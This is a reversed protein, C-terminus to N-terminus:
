GIRSGNRVGKTPTLLVVGNDDCLAGLILVESKVGAIRKPAFNLVGVVQMGVLQEPTYNRTLQASSTKIGAEGFDVQLVYAPKNAKPNPEASLVTGIRMEVREFAEWTLAQPQASEESM